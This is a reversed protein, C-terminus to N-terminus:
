GSGDPYPVFFTRDPAAVVDGAAGGKLEVTGIRDRYTAGDAFTIFFNYFGDPILITNSASGGHQQDLIQQTGFPLNSHDADDPPSSVAFERTGEIGNSFALGLSKDAGSSTNIFRIHPTNGTYLVENDRVILYTTQNTAPYLVITYRANAEFSADTSAITTGDQEAQLTFNRPAVPIFDSGTGSNVVTPQTNNNLSFAIPTGTTANIYRILTTGTTGGATAGTNQGVNDSIVLPPADLQGTVLYLYSRGADLIVDEATEVNQQSTLFTLSYRTAILNTTRPLEGYYLENIGELTKGGATVLVSNFQPLTNMFAIRAMGTETPTLDQSFAIVRLAAAEGMIVLTSPVADLVLEQQLLPAATKPDSGTTYLAFTHNGSAIERYETPRGYRVGANLPVDDMYVDFSELIQAAHILRISSREPASKTIGTITVQEPTGSIIEIHQQQAQLSLSFETLMAEGSHLTLTQEGASLPKTDASTGPQLEPVLLSGDATSLRVPQTLANVLTIASEGTNLAIQTEPLTLLQLSDAQGTIILLLSEGGTLTLMSQALPTDNPNSGSLLVKLPYEGAELPTPESAQGADLNTAIANFGAYITLTSAQPAAHIVRLHAPPPVATPVTTPRSDRTPAPTNTLALTPPLMQTPVAAPTGSCAGLIVILAIGFLMKIRMMAM